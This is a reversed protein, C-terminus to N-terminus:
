KTLLLDATNRTGIVVRPVDIDNSVIRPTSGM